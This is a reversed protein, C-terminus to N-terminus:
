ACEYYATDGSTVSESDGFGQGHSECGVSMHTHLSEVSSREVVQVLVPGKVAPLSALSDRSIFNVQPLSSQPWNDRLGCFTSQANVGATAVALINVECHTDSDYPLSGPQDERELDLVPKRGLTKTSGDRLFAMQRLILAKNPTTGEQGPTPPASDKHTEDSSIVLSGIAM